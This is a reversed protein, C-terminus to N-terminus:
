VECLLQQLLSLTLACEPEDIARKMTAELQRLGLNEVIDPQRILTSTVLLRYFGALLLVEELSLLQQQSCNSIEQFM